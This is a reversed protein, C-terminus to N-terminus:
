YVKFNKHAVFDLFFNMVEMRTVLVLTEESDIGEVQSYGKCVLKTKNRIVKGEENLKNKFVWKTGIVNKDTPKPILERTQNKEIQDLEGKMDKM